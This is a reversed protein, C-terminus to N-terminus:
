AKYSLVKLAADAAVNLVVEDSQPALVHELAELCLLVNKVTASQGMLGIRWVKGALAGIGAGIELGYRALLESRVTKDDVWDPIKVTNLMPLRYEKAVHMSLGMAEVGAVLAEHMLRHRAWSVELGEEELMVLSEYLGFLANVPATHHYTRGGQGSWYQMVLNLDNFWSAVPTKRARVVEAARDSFTVPSLGPPCSLCKQTGSYVADAGWEDVLVPVGGLSTVTDVISLCDHKRALGILAEADSLAGTSTEAHVFALAKADPNAKLADEIANPDVPRGWDFKVDVATGGFRVVNERMRGGFSGNQAVVVKDGPEVLNAFCTEMGVSGPGSVPYTLSNRTQFVYRLSTKIEEMLAQFEPDLHGITPKALAALVRPHVDSPGPGMLTRSSPAVEWLAPRRNVRPILSKPHLNMNINM